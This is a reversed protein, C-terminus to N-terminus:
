RTLSSDEEDLYEVAKGGPGDECVNEKVFILSADERLAVRARTLFYTLDSHSLHGLPLLSTILIHRSYSSTAYRSVM